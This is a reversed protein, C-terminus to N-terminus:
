SLSNACMKKPPSLPIRTYWKCILCGKWPLVLMIRWITEWKSGIQNLQIFTKCILRQYSYSALKIRRYLLWISLRMVECVLLLQSSRGSTAIWHYVKSMAQGQKAQSPSLLSHSVRTYRPSHNWWSIHISITLPMCETFTSFSKELSVRLLHENWKYYVNTADHFLMVNVRNINSISCVM